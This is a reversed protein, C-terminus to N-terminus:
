SSSLLRLSVYDLALATVLSAITAGYGVTSLIAIGMAIGTVWSAFGLLIVTRSRTLDRRMALNHAILVAMLPVFVIGIYDLFLEFYTFFLPFIALATSLAGYLVVLLRYSARPFVNLTSVTASYLNLLNTTIASVAIFVLVVPALGLSLAVRTPDGLYARTTIAALAGISYLVYSTLTYGWWTGLAAGISSIAFRSYDAVLPAWSIATALVMDFGWLIDSLSVGTRFAIPNSLMYSVLAWTEYGLVLLLTSVAIRQYLVWREAGIMTYLTEVIGLILVWLVISSLPTSTKLLYKMAEAAAEASAYLLISAWGILQVANLISAIYSGRVGIVERMLVMTPLGKREGLIAVAGLLAGGLTSATLIVAISWPMGLRPAIVGGTFITALCTNGGAWLLFIDVGRYVRRDRPIPELVRASLGM